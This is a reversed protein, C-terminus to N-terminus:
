SLEMKRVLNQTSFIKFHSARRQAGMLQASCPTSFTGPPLRLSAWSSINITVEGYFCHCGHLHGVWLRESKWLLCLDGPAQVGLCSPWSVWFFEPTPTPTVSLRSGASCDALSGRSNRGRCLSDRCSRDPGAAEQLLSPKDRAGSERPPPSKRLCRWGVSVAEKESVTTLHWASPQSKECM